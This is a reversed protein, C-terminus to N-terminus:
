LGTYHNIIVKFRTTDMFPAFGLYLHSSKDPYIDIGYNDLLIKWVLETCYMKDNDTLDFKNDFPVRERLYKKADAVITNSSAFATDVFRVVVISNAKSEAAFKKLSCSQLGDYDSLTSSVSHIVYSENTDAVVIGCHSLRYPENLIETIKNSVFGFGKRLIIDGDHLLAVEESSLRDGKYSSPSSTSNDIAYYVVVAMVLAVIVLITTKLRNM